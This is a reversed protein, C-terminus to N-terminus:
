IGDYEEDPIIDDSGHVARYVMSFMGINEDIVPGSCGLFHLEGIGSLKTNNLIGDIYGLIKFPRQQYDTLSWCETNCIVDICVSCDRFEPNTGNPIFDNFSLVIAAKLKEYEENKEVPSLVIYGNDILQKLSMDDVKKYEPNSEDVLCDKNTIVLLRKLTKSHQRSDIFLKRLITETDRECSLFSSNLPKALVDRKM